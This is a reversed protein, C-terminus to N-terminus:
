RAAAIRQRWTLRLRGSSAITMELPLRAGSGADATRAGGRSPGGLPWLGIKTFPAFGRARMHLMLSPSFDSHRNEPITPPASIVVFLWKVYVAGDKAVRVLKATLCFFLTMYIRFNHSADVMMHLAIAATVGADAALADPVHSTGDAAAATLCWVGPDATVTPLLQRFNSKRPAREGVTFLV